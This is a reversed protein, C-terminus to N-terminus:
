ERGVKVKNIILRVKADLEWSGKKYYKPNPLGREVMRNRDLVFKNVGRIIGSDKLLKISYLFEMYEHYGLRFLVMVYERKNRVFSCFHIFPRDMVANIFGHSWGESEFEILMLKVLSTEVLKGRFDINFGRILGRNLVHEKYHYELNQPSIGIKRAISALPTTADTELEKLLLVDIEDLSVGEEYEQPRVERRKIGKIWRLFDNNWRCEKHNFYKDFQPFPRIIESLELIRYFYIIGEDRLVNLYDRIVHERERPTLYIALYGDITGYMPAFFIANDLNLYRETVEYSPAEVLVLLARLGIKHYDVDARVKVVKLRNCLRNVRYRVTEIPLNLRRAIWSINRPNQRLLNIIKIDLEDLLVKPNGIRAMIKVRETM